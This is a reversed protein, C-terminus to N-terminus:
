SVTVSVGPPLVVAGDGGGTVSIGNGAVSPDEETTVVTAGAPPTGEVQSSGRAQTNPQILTAGSNGTGEIDVPVGNIETNGDALVTAGGNPAFITKGPDDTSSPNGVVVDTGDSEIVTGPSDVQAPDGTITVPAARATLALCTISALLSIRMNTSPHLHIDHYAALLITSPLLEKLRNKEITQCYFYPQSSLNRADSSPKTRSKFFRMRRTLRPHDSPLDHTHM